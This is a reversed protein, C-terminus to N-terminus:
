SESGIRRSKPLYVRLQLPQPLLARRGARTSKHVAPLLAIARGGVLASTNDPDHRESERAGTTSASIHLTCHGLTHRLRGDPDEVAARSPPQTHNTNPKKHTTQIQTYHVHLDADPVGSLHPTSSSARLTTHRHHHKPQIVSWLSWHLCVHTFPQVFVCMVCVHTCVVPCALCALM